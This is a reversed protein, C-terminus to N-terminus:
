ILFRILQQLYELLSDTWKQHFDPIEPPGIIGLFLGVAILLVAIVLDKNRALLTALSMTKRGM